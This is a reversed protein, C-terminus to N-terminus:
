RRPTPNAAQVWVRLSEALDAEARADDSDAVYQLILGDVCALVLRGLVDFDIACQEDAAQAADRCFDAVTSSYRQYQLRALDSHNDSRIAYTTLEYQMTQLGVSHEVLRHWFSFVGHHLANAVGQSVDVDARLATTVEDVVREIVARMLADKTAFAYQLTGLPLEAEAAVARLTTSPVGVRSLVAIAANVIHEERQQARSSAM